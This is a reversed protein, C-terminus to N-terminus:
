PKFFASSLYVEHYADGGWAKVKACVQKYHNNGLTPDCDHNMVVFAYCMSPHDTILQNLGLNVSDGDIIAPPQGNQCDTQWNLECAVAGCLEPQCTQQDSCYKVTGTPLPLGEKVDAEIKLFQNNLYGQM